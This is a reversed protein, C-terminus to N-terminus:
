QPAAIKSFVVTGATSIGSCAGFIANAVIVTYLLGGRAWGLWTKAADFTDGAMGTIGALTGVLIFLPIVAYSYSSAITLIGSSLQTMVMKTGGLIWLGIVSCLMISVYVPVGVIVLVIMVAFLIIGLIAASTM